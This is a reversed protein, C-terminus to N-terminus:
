AIVLPRGAVASLEGDWCAPILLRAVMPKASGHRRLQRLDDLGRDTCGGPSYPAFDPLWGCIGLGPQM